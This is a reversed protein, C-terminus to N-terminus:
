EDVELDRAYYGPLNGCRGCVGVPPDQQMEVWEASCVPCDLQWVENKKLM